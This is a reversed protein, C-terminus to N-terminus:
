WKQGTDAQSGTLKRKIYLGGFVAVFFFGLLFMAAAFHSPTEKSKSPVTAGSSTNNPLTTNAQKVKEAPGTKSNPTPATEVIAAKGATSTAPKQQIADLFMEHSSEPADYPAMHSANALRYYTLNRGFWVKTGFNGWKKLQSDLNKSPDNSLHEQISNEIGLVNCIIDKDGGYISITIQQLLEPFFTISPEGTNGIVNQFVGSDCEEWTSRTYQTAHLAKKVEEKQLVLGNLLNNLSFFNLQLCIMYSVALYLKM